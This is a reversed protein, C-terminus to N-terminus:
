SLRNRLPQATQGVYQKHCRKFQILYMVFKSKSDALDNTSYSRKTIHSHAMASTILRSHISCSKRTCLKTQPTCQHVDHKINALSKITDKNTNTKPISITTSSYDKSQKLKAQGIQQAPHTAFDRLIKSLDTFARM